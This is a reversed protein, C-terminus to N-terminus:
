GAKRERDRQRGRDRQREKDREIERELEKVCVCVFKKTITCGIQSFIEELFNFQPFLM